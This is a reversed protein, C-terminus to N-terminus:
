PAGPFQQSISVVLVQQAVIVVSQPGVDRHGDIFLFLQDVLVVDLISRSYPEHQCRPDRTLSLEIVAM